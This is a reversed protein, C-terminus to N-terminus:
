EKTVWVALIDDIKKIGEHGATKAAEYAIRYTHLGESFLPRRHKWGTLSTLKSSDTWQPFDIIGAPWPSEGDELDSAEVYELGKEVRYERVLALAVDDVTEYRQASINFVQCEVESRRPHSALAVYAEGCDDVHLAHLIADPSTPLVLPRGQGASRAAVDLFVKYFSSHRGYVNTPRVLVPAFADAHEFISVAHGARRALVPIPNLPSSETHPALGAAGHHHPGVGYDKCGSTFIVLPRTGAASSTAGLTRLLRITHQFHPVYDLTNETTSVIADLTSPLRNQIDAHASVDDIAGIVPIIEEQALATAATLSRVLGYTTWGAAVFARAVANGIYGNAGTVFVTKPAM